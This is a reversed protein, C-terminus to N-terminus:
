CFCYLELEYIIIFRRVKSSRKYIAPINSIFTQYGQDQFNSFYCKNEDTSNQFNLGSRILAIYAYIFSSSDLISMQIMIYAKVHLKYNYRIQTQVKYLRELEMIKKLGVPQTKATLIERLIGM